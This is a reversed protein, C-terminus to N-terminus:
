LASHILQQPDFARRPDLGLARRQVVSLSKVGSRAASLLSRLQKADFPSSEASGHIGVFCGEGTMFVNMDVEASSDEEYTLDCLVHGSVIGVGVGAVQDRIPIRSIRGDGVMWRCAQCLAIFAGTVAATRTGGDAEIVDCDITITHEPIGRLDVVARLSRGILRQIESERGGARSRPLRVPVSRPLMGYEATVWGQSTGKLFFPQRNEVTASCVVWTNGMRISASGEGHQLFPTEIKARRVQRPGRGDSRSFETKESTVASGKGALALDANM